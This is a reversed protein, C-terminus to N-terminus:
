RNIIEQAETEGYQTRIYDVLRERLQEQNIGVECDSDDCEHGEYDHHQDGVPEVVEGIRGELDESIRELMDDLSYEEDSEIWERIARVPVRFQGRETINATYSCRGRETGERWVAVEFATRDEPRTTGGSRQPTNAIRAYQRAMNSTFQPKPFELEAWEKLQEYNTVSEPVPTKFIAQFHARLTPNCPASKAMEILSENLVQEIDFKRWKPRKALPEEALLGIKWVEPYDGRRNYAYELTTIYVDNDLRNTSQHSGFEGKLFSFGIAANGQMYVGNRQRIGPRRSRGIDGATMTEEIVLFETNISDYPGPAKAVVEPTAPKEATTADEM